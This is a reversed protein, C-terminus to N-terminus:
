KPNLSKKKDIKSSIILEFSTKKIVQHTINDCRNKDYRRNKDLSFLFIYLTRYVIENM